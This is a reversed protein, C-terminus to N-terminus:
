LFGGSAAILCDARLSTVGMWEWTLPFFPCSTERAAPPENLANGTARILSPRATRQPNMTWCQQVRVRCHHVSDLPVSRGTSSSKPKYNEKLWGARRICLSHISFLEFCVAQCMSWCVCTSWYIYVDKNNNFRWVSKWQKEWRLLKHSCIIIFFPLIINSDLIYIKNVRWYCMIVCLRPSCFFVLFNHAKNDYGYADTM